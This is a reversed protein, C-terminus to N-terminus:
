GGEGFKQSGTRVSVQAAAQLLRTFSPVLTRTSGIALTFAPWRFEAFDNTAWEPEVGSLQAYFDVLRHIDATIVRMSALDAAASM